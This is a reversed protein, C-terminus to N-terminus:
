KNGVINNNNKEKKKKAYMVSTMVTEFGLYIIWIEGMNFIVQQHTEWEEM